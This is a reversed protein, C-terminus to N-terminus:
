PSKKSKQKKHQPARPLLVTFTSGKGLTSQVKIQGKHAEVIRKAISLGLGTGILKRTGKGRVRYFQDFILPLSEEPIGMGTDAVDVALFEGDERLSVTVKGGKRNYTIGNSIINLFVHTLTIKDGHARPIDDLPKLQLAVESKDALPQLLEMAEGLLPKLDFDQSRKAIEEEKIGMMQLWDNVLKMLGDIRESARGLMEKQKVKLKGGIEEDLIVDFYQKVAILPSRLEHTVLSIFNEEMQKKEQRLTATELLLRRKELGRNTILRLEDPTFPKPVYDYAGLKMAEVASEITAYGTIVISVIDPDIEKLSELVEMGSIGPMKLDVLVLDPKTKKVKELGVSGDEATETIYGEKSLVQSCSDRISAEDDIILIKLKEKM